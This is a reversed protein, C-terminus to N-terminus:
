KNEKSPQPLHKIPLSLTVTTGKGEGESQLAVEGDHENMINRIIFLGLGSGNAHQFSSKEGRSFKQSLRPLDSKPVGIGTDQVEIEAQEGKIRLRVTVGGKNTYKEANDIVDMVAEKLYKQEADVKPISKSPKEVKLYLGKKDYNPKLEEVVENILTMLDVPRFLFKLHGGELEMADLLDNVINNLHNAAMLMHTQQERKKEGPLEEFDGDAQMALFGRVATLPTRLQHSAISLFESKMKILEQLHVNKERIEGIQEDVKSQLNKNFDQVQQYSRANEIAVVAQNSITQLLRFDEVTYADGTVKKGLVIISILKDKSMLPVCLSAEIKKMNAKLQMLKSKEESDKTEEIMRDLEEDVVIKRNNTLWQVLFNDRVLSVGNKENFGIVKAILYRNANRENSLILVGARDLGMTRIITDVILDIVKHIEIVATLKIALDELTAQYNYLSTFFYKNAIKEFFRNLPNLFLLAIVMAISGTYLLTLDPIRKALFHAVIFISGLIFVLFTFSIWLHLITKKLVIRIDMLRHRAISYVTFAILFVMSLPGFMALQNNETILPLFLNTTLTILATIFFGFFLYKLQYKELGSSRRYKVILLVLMGVVTISMFGIFSGYLAGPVVNTGWDLFEVKSVISNTIASIIALLVGLPLLVLRSIREFRRFSFPFISAFYFLFAGQLFAVAFVLRNWTIALEPSIPHDCLYNFGTWLVTLFIIASFTRNVASRRNKKLIMFGLIVNLINIAILFILLSAM